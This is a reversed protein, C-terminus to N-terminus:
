FLATSSSIQKELLLEDFFVFRWGRLNALFNIKLQPFNGGVANNITSTTVKSFKGGFALNPRPKLVQESLTWNGTGVSFYHITYRSQVIYCFPLM